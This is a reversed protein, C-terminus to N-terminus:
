KIKSDNAVLSRSAIAIALTITTRFTMAYITKKEYAGGSHIHIFFAVFTIILVLTAIWMLIASWKKNKLFGYVTALYIFGCIFNAWVVFLVYNGEKVRIGFLDFIVSGGMFITILGFLFLFVSIIKLWYSKM